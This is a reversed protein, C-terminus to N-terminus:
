RAEYYIPARRPKLTSGDIFGRPIKHSLDPALSMLQEEEAFEQMPITRYENGNFFLRPPPNPVYFHCEGDDSTGELYAFSQAGAELRGKTEVRIPNEAKGIFGDKANITLPGKTMISTKFFPTNGEPLKYQIEREVEVFASGVEIKGNLLIEQGKAQLHGLSGEITGFTARGRGTDITIPQLRDGEIQTFELLGGQTHLSVGSSAKLKLHTQIRDQQSNAFILPLGNSTFTVHGENELNISPSVWTEQGASYHLGALDANQTAKVDLHKAVGYTKGTGINKFMVKSTVVKLDGLPSTTGIDGKFFVAGNTRENKVVLARSPRDADLTSEFLINGNRYGTNTITIAESHDITVPGNFTIDNNNTNVDGGLYIREAAYVIPGTSNVSSNQDIVKGNLNVTKFRDEGKAIGGLHSDLIIKGKPAQLSLSINGKVTSKFHINGEKALITFVEEPSKLVVPGYFATDSAQIPGTLTITKGDAILHDVGEVKGLSVTSKKSSVSFNSNSGKVHPITAAGTGTTISLDNGSSLFLSAGNFTISQNSILTTPKSSLFEFNKQANYVQPGANYVTGLFSIMGPTEFKLAGYVGAHGNGINHVTIPGSCTVDLIGIPNHTGIDDLFQCTQSEIKLDGSGNLTSQFKVETKSSLNVKALLAVPGEFAIGGITATIDQALTAGGPGKQLVAKAIISGEQNIAMARNVQAIFDGKACNVPKHIHFAETKVDVGNPATLPGNIGTIGTGEKQIFQGVTMPGTTVNHASLITISDLPRLDGVPGLFAIDGNVADLSLRVQGFRSDADLSRHFVIDGGLDGPSLTLDNSIISVPANFILKSNRAFISAGIQLLNTGDLSFKACDVEGMVVVNNGKLFLDGVKNPRTWYVAEDATMSLSDKIDLKGESKIHAANIEALNSEISSKATLYVTGNERKIQSAEVLGNVNVVDKILERATRLDLRVDSAIIQGDQEIVGKKLPAEIAFSILQDDDFSLTIVEGGLFEVKGMSATIVGQNFVQPAMFVVAHDAHIKGKNVIAKDGGNADMTFRYNGALFDENKINLTSAILTGVNVQSTEGFIIGYPNILLLRSNSELRGRIKSAEKGTIRCLISHSNKEQIFRTHEDPALNFKSFHIIAKDEATITQTKGVIEHTANGSVAEFNEGHALLALPTVLILSLVRKMINEM